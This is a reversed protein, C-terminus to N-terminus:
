VRGPIPLEKIVEELTPINGTSLANEEIEQCKEWVKVYWDLIKQAEEKFNSNTDAWIKVTSISDYGANKIVESIYKTIRENFYVKIDDLTATEEWEKKDKNWIPKMMDSPIEKYKIEGDEIYEGDTLVRVGNNVLELKTMERINGNELIPNSLKEESIYIEQGSYEKFYNDFNSAYDLPAHLFDIFKGTNDYLYIKIADTM